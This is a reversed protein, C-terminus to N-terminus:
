TTLALFYLLGVVRVCAGSAFSSNAAILPLSQCCCLFFSEVCKFDTIEAPESGRLCLGLLGLSLGLQLEKAKFVFLLFFALLTWFAACLPLAAVLDLVKAKVVQALAVTVIVTTLNFLFLGPFCGCDQGREAGAHVARMGTVRLVALGAAVSTRKKKLMWFKHGARWM